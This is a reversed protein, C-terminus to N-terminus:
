LRRGTVFTLVSPIYKKMLEYLILLSGVTVGVSLIYVLVYSYDSSPCLIMYMFKTVRQTILVHSIYIFFCASSLFPSHKVGHGLLWKSLNYAFFLFGLISITKLGFTWEHYGNKVAFFYLISSIPYVLISLFKLTKQQFIIDRKNICLYAGLTFFLFAESFGYSGFRLNPFLWIAALVLVFYFKARRILYYLVPSLLAVIMLDRVFWLPTNIPDSNLFTAAETTNNPVSIFLHGNYAWFSSLLNELTLNLITKYTAFGNGSYFCKILGVVIEMFNWILYPILLTKIRNRLKKIYRQKTFDDIGYFFVYGSIFFFVPVSVGRIFSEIFLMVDGFVSINAPNFTHGGAIVKNNNFVHVTVVFVALPFRMFDLCRSQINREAM